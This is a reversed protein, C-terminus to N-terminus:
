WFKSKKGDQKNMYAEYEAFSMKSPDTKSVDGNPKVPDIPEPANSVKKTPKLLLKEEIKALEIAQKYPTLQSIEKAKEENTALYYAVEGAKELESLAIVMDKTIPVNPNKIVNDFDKYKERVDDFLDDLKRVASDFDVSDNTPTPTEVKKDSRKTQKNLAEEYEEYTDYDLPSIEKAEEKPTAKEKSKYFNLEDELRRKEREADERQRVLKDIRKQYRTQNNTEADKSTDPEKEAQNDENSVPTTDSTPAEQEEGKTETQPAEEQPTSITELENTVVTFNDSM